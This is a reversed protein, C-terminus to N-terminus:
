ATSSSILVIQLPTHSFDALKAATALRGLASLQVAKDLSMQFVWSVCHVDLVGPKGPLQRNVRIVDIVEFRRFSHPPYPFTWRLIFCVVSM